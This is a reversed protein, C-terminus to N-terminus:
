LKKSHVQAHHQFKKKDMYKINKQNKKKNKKKKLGDKEYRCAM